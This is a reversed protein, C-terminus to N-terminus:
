GDEEATLESISVGLAKAIGEAAEKPAFSGRGYDKLSSMPIGALRAIKDWTAKVEQGEWVITRSQKLARLNRLNYPNRRPRATGLGREDEDPRAQPMPQCEGKGQAACASCYPGIVDRALFAICGDCKRGRPQLRERYSKAQPTDVFEAIM